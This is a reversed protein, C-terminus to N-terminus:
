FISIINDNTILISSCQFSLLWHKSNSYVVFTRRVPKHTHCYCRRLVPPSLFLKFVLRLTFSQSHCFVKCACYAAVHRSIWGTHTSTLSRHGIRKHVSVRGLLQQLDCGRTVLWKANFKCNFNFAKAKGVVGFVFVDDDM